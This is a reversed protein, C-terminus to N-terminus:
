QFKKEKKWDAVLMAAGIQNTYTFVFGAFPIIELASAILGFQHYQWYLSHIHRERRKRSWKLHDFYRRNALGGRVNANISIVALPGVIPIITLPLTVIYLFTPICSILFSQNDNSRAVAGMIHEGSIWWKARKKLEEETKPIHLTEAVQNIFEEKNHPLTIKLNSPNEKEEKNKKDPKPVDIGNEILVADFLRDRVSGIFYSGVQSTVFFSEALCLISSTISAAVSSSSFFTTILSSILSKTATRQESTLMDRYIARLIRAQWHYGIHFIPIMALLSIAGAKLVSIVVPGGLHKGNHLLHFIGKIPYIAPKNEQKNLSSKQKSLLPAM